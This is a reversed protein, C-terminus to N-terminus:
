TVHRDIWAQALQRARATHGLPVEVTEHIVRGRRLVQAITAFQQGVTRTRITPETIHSM